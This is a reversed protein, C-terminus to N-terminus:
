TSAPTSSSQERENGEVGAYHQPLIYVGHDLLVCVSVNNHVKQLSEVKHELRRIHSALDRCKQHNTLARVSFRLVIMDERLYGDNEQVCLLPTNFTMRDDSPINCM